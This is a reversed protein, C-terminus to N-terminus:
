PDITAWKSDRQFLSDVAIGSKFPTRHIESFSRPPQSQEQSYRSCNAASITRHQRQYINMVSFRWCFCPFVETNRETGDKAEKDQPPQYACDPPGSGSKCLACLLVSCGLDVRYVGLVSDRKM